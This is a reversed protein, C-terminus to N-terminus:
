TREFLRGAAWGAGLAILVAIFGYLTPSRHALDAVFADFGSKSVHLPTTQMGILEGDDFLYIEATYDGKPIRDPFAIETKFLTEAMFGIPAPSANYLAQQRQQRRFAEAFQPYEGVDKGYRPPVLLAEEGIGLANLASNARLSELPKSAAVAYFDPVGSFKMSQRNIWVGAIRHKKRVMYDKQPGRIVVIIDGNEIRAGFLFLRTGNFGSDIEIRYTSLDAVLPAALVKLPWLLLFGIWWVQKYFEMM